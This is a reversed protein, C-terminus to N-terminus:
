AINDSTISNTFIEYFGLGVFTNALKEKLIFPRNNKEISPSITITSPIDINDLGDIRMIEEVVDAPITIDPKSYPVALKLQSETEELLEFGLALLIAKIDSAEYKKGSLKKLFSFEFDIVTKPQQNPYIDIPNGSIKGGAIEKILQAARKLVVLTNSIDVGKEFRASADTRLDHKLATKRISQKEFCASELFINQTNNKIGSEAGGFVGAICMPEVENCIMLDTALLKREKEDLTKFLTNEVDTKVIVKNGTIKDLDFAHLPQGTEHLIFNTIDVINNIPKLGISKIRKLLWDPSDAITVGLISVGSYRMCADTNEIVVEVNSATDDSVLENNYPLKVSFTEKHHYSLYACVDKAVGLHSMADMRNPTLGIEYIYDLEPNYLEKATTGVNTEESLVIIGGHDDSLGIEDEACIM